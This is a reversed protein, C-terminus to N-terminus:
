GSRPCAATKFDATSDIGLARVVGDIEWLALRAATGTAVKLGELRVAPQAVLYDAVLPDGSPLLLRGDGAVSVSVSPLSDRRAGVYAADTISSNFFETLYASLFEQVYQQDRPSFGPCAEVGGLLTVSRGRPVREDLWFREESRLAVTSPVAGRHALVWSLENTVVFVALVVAPLLRAWRHPLLFTAPVLIVAFLVVVGLGYGGVSEDVGAWLTTAVANFQQLADDDVYSFLFLDDYKYSFPLAIIPLTLAFVAGLVAVRWPRPTRESIWAFLVILWLPVIYFAPRDHLREGAYVTTNFAATLLLLATNAFLFLAIFAAHRESGRRASTLFISLVIPAVAFPVIALYLELNALQYLFAKAVDVPDYTRVLVSYDGVTQDSRGLTWSAALAALALAFAAATPWLPILASSTRPRRAPVLMPVLVLGLLYVAFLVLFQTRVGAALLIAAMAGIQRLVSPQELALLMAYLAWWCALYALCETMVVSVYMASPIAVSFVAAAVSPWPPLVKRAVLFIPIASLAFFFANLVKALEYAGERDSAVWHVTSLLAPYLPAYRYAEGRITLGDGEGLSAATVFYLLEDTYVRPAGIVSALGAYAIFAAVVTAVVGFAPGRPVRTVVSQHM